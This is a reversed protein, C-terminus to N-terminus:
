SPVEPAAGTSVVPPRPPLGERIRRSFDPANGIARARETVDSRARLEPFPLSTNVIGRMYLFEDGRGNVLIRWNWPNRTGSQQAHFRITTTCNHTLANYWKPRRALRNVEDVYSLLIARATEPAGRLRYLYVRERRYDTRLRIVDREDAVVYYLEFQRFFGRVASYSEGKEKRTEISIALPAGGDFQWSAITHVILPSGWSSVFLDMGRLRALDYTRTEWREDFDTESRYDFNRLGHITLRDGQVEATPTRAVEPLWDRDNRPPISLWWLLLAAFLGLAVALGRRRLRAALPIALAALVFAAALAGALPRSAPGDFWLALGGWGTAGIWVLAALGRWAWRLM